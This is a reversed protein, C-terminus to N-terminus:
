KLSGFRSQLTSTLDNAKDWVATTDQCFPLAQMGIYQEYGSTKITVFPTWRAKGGAQVRVFQGCLFYHKEGDSDAIHGFRVERFRLVGSPGHAHFDKAASTILFEAVSDSSDKQLGAVPAQHSGAVRSENQTVQATCCTALILTIFAIAPIQVTTGPSPTHNFYDGPSFPSRTSKTKSRHLSYDQESIEASHQGIAIM